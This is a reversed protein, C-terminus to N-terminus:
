QALWYYQKFSQTNIGQEQSGENSPLKPGMQMEIGQLLPQPILMQVTMDM